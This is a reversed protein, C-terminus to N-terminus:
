APPLVIIEPDEVLLEKESVACIAYPYLAPAADKKVRGVIAQGAAATKSSWDLPSVLSKIIVSFPVDKEIRWTITDGRHVCLHEKDEPLAIRKAKIRARVEHEKPRERATMGGVVRM